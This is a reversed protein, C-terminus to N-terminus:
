FFTPRGLAMTHTKKFKNTNQGLFLLVQPGSLPKCTSPFGLLSQYRHSDKLGKLSKLKEKKALTRRRKM